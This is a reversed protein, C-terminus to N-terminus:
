GLEVPRFRYYWRDRENPSRSATHVIVRASSVLVLSLHAPLEAVGEELGGVSRRRIKMSRVATTRRYTVKGKSVTLREYRTETHQSVLVVTSDNVVIRASGARRWQQMSSKKNTEEFRLAAFFISLYIAFVRKSLYCVLIVTLRRSIYM